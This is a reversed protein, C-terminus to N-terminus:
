FTNFREVAVHLTERDCASLIEIRRDIWKVTRSIVAGPGVEFFLGVDCTRLKRILEVWRVSRSLQAAMVKGLEKKDSVAELFLYSILPM